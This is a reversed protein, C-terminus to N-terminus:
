VSAAQIVGPCNGTDVVLVGRQDESTKKTTNIYRNLIDMMYNVPSRDTTESAPWNGCPGPEATSHPDSLTARREPDGGEPWIWSALAWTRWGRRPPACPWGAVSRPDSWYQFGLQSQWGVKRRWGPQNVTTRHKLQAANQINILTPASPAKKDVPNPLLPWKDGSAVDQILIKVAVEAPVM